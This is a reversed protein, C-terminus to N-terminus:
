QKPPLLGFSRLMDKIRSGATWIRCKLSHLKQHLLNLLQYFGNASIFALVKRHESIYPSTVYQYRMTNLKKIALSQPLRVDYRQEINKAAKLVLKKLSRFSVQHPYDQLYSHTLRGFFIARPDHFYLGNLCAINEASIIALKSNFSKKQVGSTPRLQSSLSNPFERYIVLADKLNAVSFHRSIRSVYEYDEPPEREPDITYYGIRSIVKSPFM